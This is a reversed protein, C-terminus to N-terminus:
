SELTSRAPELGEVTALHKHPRERLRLVSLIQLFTSALEVSVVERPVLNKITTNELEVSVAERPYWVKKELEVSVFERSVLRM